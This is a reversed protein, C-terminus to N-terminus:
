RDYEREFFEKLFKARIKGIAQVEFLEKESANVLEKVSGFHKLLIKATM